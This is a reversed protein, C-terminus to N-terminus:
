VTTMDTISTRVRFMWDTRYTVTKLKAESALVPEIGGGPVTFEVFPLGQTPAVSMIANHVDARLNLYATDLNIQTANAALALEIGVFVNWDIFSTNQPGFEGIPNDGVYFVGVFPLQSDVLPRTQGLVVNAANINVHAGLTAVLANLLTLFLNDM